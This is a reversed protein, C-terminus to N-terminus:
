RIQDYLAQLTNDERDHRATLQMSRRLGVQLFFM